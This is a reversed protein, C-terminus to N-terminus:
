HELGKTQYFYLPLIIVGILFSSSKNLSTLPFTIQLLTAKNKVFVIVVFFPMFCVFFVM